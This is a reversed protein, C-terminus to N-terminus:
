PFKLPFNTDFKSSHKFIKSTKREKRQLFHKKEKAQGEREKFTMENGEGLSEFQQM